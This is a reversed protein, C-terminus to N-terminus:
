AAREIAGDDELRVVVDAIALPEVRHTVLIVTRRGRLRAIAALVAQQADADLGSTPEDLLLVPQRTAIARALAVWQREGGSLARGGAGVRADGQSALSTAGLPELCDRVDASPAGLAVNASLTDALVPADQPVWVFPRSRPGAPAGGLSVGGFLVDGSAPSELGLLTRLLTTKGVATPGMVVAVAGREVRMSIAGARGRALRLERVELAAPAFARDTRERRDTADTRARAREIVSVLEGYSAEARMMTLRADSLERLPRYALFFAVAFAFLVAGAAREGLAGARGAGVALVLALAALTENAASMTAARAELWASGRALTDGLRRVNVRVKEEAGFTVWLDAHRVAEDAAEHLNAQERAIQAIARRYRSRAAGLAWGFGSLVLVAAGAMRPSLAVLLAAIPVLQAVARAGALLGRSLGAEIDKVLDTLALAAVPSLGSRSQDIQRPPPVRHLCLLADLLELRLACGIQGATRVQVYTAYVGAAGKFVVVVLGAVAFSFAANPGSLRGPLLALLPARSQGSPAWMSAVSLALASAVLAMLAHGLAHMGTALVFAVARFPGHFSRRLEKLYYRLLVSTSSM